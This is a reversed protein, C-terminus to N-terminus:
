YISYINLKFNFILLNHLIILNLVGAIFEFNFSNFSDFDFQKNKIILILM